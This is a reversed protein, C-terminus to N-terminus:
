PKLFLKKVKTKDNGTFRIFYLGPSQTSFDIQASKSLKGKYIIEGKANFIEYDIINGPDNVFITFVGSSPNPLITIGNSVPSTINNTNVTLGTVVSLGNVAFNGSADPASQDYVAELAIEDGTKPRYAKFFITEGPVFGDKETTTIDDAFAKLETNNESLQTIGACYGDTTFAGIIDGPLLYRTAAHKFIILHAAGTYDVDNWPTINKVRVPKYKTSTHDSCQPFTFNSEQETKVYYAKGPILENLTNINYEPFYLGDGAVETALIFGDIQSLYTADVNCESLVPILNWGQKLSLERNASFGSITLTAPQDMKSIYGHSNAFCCITNIGYAPFYLQDFYQTIIMENSVPSMLDEMTTGTGPNIFSSWGNWGQSLSIDQTEPTGVFLRVPISVSPNVPDNSIIFIHADYTGPDLGSADFTIGAFENSNPGITDCSPLIHLWGDYSQFALASITSNNMVPGVLTTSATNKDITRLEFQGPWSSLNFTAMYLLNSAPDWSMSQAYNSNFGVYGIVTGAGSEKDLLYLMDDTKNFAFLNGNGDCALSVLVGSCCSGIMTTDGNSLDVTYLQSMSTASNYAIAFMQNTTYDFAFDNTYPMPGIPSIEGTSTNIIGLQGEYTNAYLTNNQDFDASLVINSLPINTTFVGPNDTDFNVLAIGNGSGQTCGTAQSGRTFNNGSYLINTTWTLDGTGMNGIYLQQTSTEGPALLAFITDNNVSIQPQGPVVACLTNSPGLLIDPTAHEYINYCYKKSPEVLTDTYTNGDEVTAILEGDRYVDFYPSFVDECSITFYYDNMELENCPFGIADKPSVWFYYTGAQPLDLIISQPTCPEGYAFPSINNTLNSCGPVGPSYQQILGFLSPFESVCTVTITKPVDVTLEYCDFDRLGLSNVYFTSATACITDGCQISEFVPPNSFCGGNYTDIYGNTPCPEDSIIAGEPCEISCLPNTEINFYFPDSDNDSLSWYIKYSHNKIGYFTVGSSQGNYPCDDQLNYNYALLTGDCDEYVYLETNVSQGALCSSVTISANDDPTFEFWYPSGPCYNEGVMATDALQCFSGPQTIEKAQLVFDFCNPPPDCDLMIYHTGAEFYYTLSNEGFMGTVYALCDGGVPCEDSILMAWYMTTTTSVSLEVVKSEALTLEYVIDEGDDLYGLCTQSYDNGRGCTTNTDAFPLTDVIIPNFCNDGASRTNVHSPTVQSSHAQHSNNQVSEPATMLKDISIEERNKGNEPIIFIPNPEWSLDVKCPSAEATLLLPPSFEMEFNVTTTDDETILINEFTQPIYGEKEASVDYSGPAVILLFTGADGTLISYEGATIKVGQVPSKKLEDTVIGTIFGTPSLFNKGKKETQQSLPHFTPNDVIYKKDASSNNHSMPYTTSTSILMLMFVFFSITKKMM